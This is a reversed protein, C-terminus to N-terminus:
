KNKTVLNFAAKVSETDIEFNFLNLDIKEDYNFINHKRCYEHDIDVRAESVSRKVFERISEKM